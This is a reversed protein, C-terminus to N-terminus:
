CLVVYTLCKTLISIMVTTITQSNTLWQKVDLREFPQYEIQMKLHPYPRIYATIEYTIIREIGHVEM